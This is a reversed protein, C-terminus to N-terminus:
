ILERIIEINDLKSSFRIRYGLGNKLKRKTPSSILGYKKNLMIILRNVEDYTFSETCIVITKGNNDYYGDGMIWFALSVENFYLNLFEDSPVIKTYKDNSSDYSYWIKHLETFYEMNKSQFSYQTPNDVKPPYPAPKTDTCLGKLVDFKLWCIFDYVEAKFTFQLRCNGTKRKNSNPNRLCGDGMVLGTIAEKQYQTPVINSNESPLTSYYKKDIYLLDRSNCLNNKKNKSQYKHMNYNKNNIFSFEGILLWRRGEMADPLWGHLGIQASKALAAIILLLGILFLNFNYPSALHLTSNIIEFDFSKFVKFILLLALILALDGFRNYVVAKFASKNALLRRFWFNILL